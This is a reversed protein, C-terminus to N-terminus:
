FFNELVPYAKLFAKSVVLELQEAVDDFDNVSVGLTAIKSNLCRLDFVNSDDDVLTVTLLKSLKLICLAVLWASDGQQISGRARNNRVIFEVCVGDAFITLKSTLAVIEIRDAIPKLADQIVKQWDGPLDSATWHLLINDFKAPAITPKQM